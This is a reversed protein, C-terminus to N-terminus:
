KKEKTLQQCRKYTKFINYYLIVNAFIGIINAILIITGM